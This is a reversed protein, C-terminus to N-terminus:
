SITTSTSSTGTTGRGGNWATRGTVATIANTPAPPPRLRTGSSCTRWYAPSSRPCPSLKEVDVTVRRCRRSTSSTPGSSDRRCRRAERDAGGPRRVGAPEGAGPGGAVPSAARVRGARGAGAPDPALDVLESPDNEMDYLEPAYGPYANYKWRPTRLMFMGTPAGGDHYESLVARGAHRGAALEQLPLGSSGAGDAAIGFASLVTPGIDVLSTLTSVTEGEPVGPGAVIMPIGASEDYLTMKTWLGRDGNHDGHDSTYIVLTDDAHGGEELAELVQGVQHDLFSCLGYYSARAVQRTEDTFWRDYDFNRRLASTVPHDSREGAATFRARDMRDLPYLDYFPQPCRLPYHPRLWSVFLTWPSDRGATQPDRLWECAARTVDVDYDTYSSEGPGIDSAYHSCDLVAEHDRLLGKAWGVGDRIHLPLIERDFGNNTDSGRYHLKGISEVRIGHDQLVHGWGRPEGHYAQANSWCRTEHVYRGTALSARAPVCIPSPTYARTFRTGRRALGDLHDTRVLPHGACGLADRRHEDSFLILVNAPRMRTM